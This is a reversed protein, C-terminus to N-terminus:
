VEGSDSIVVASVPRDTRDTRTKEIQRVIDLGEVVQLLVLICTLLGLLTQCVPTYLSRNVRSMVTVIRSIVCGFCNFVNSQKQIALHAQQAMRGHMDFLHIVPPFGPVTAPWTASMFLQACVLISSSM